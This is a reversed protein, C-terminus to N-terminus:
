FYDPKGAADRVVAVAISGWKVSGDKTIHRNEVQVSGREILRQLDAESPRDDPHLIEIFSKGLLEAETYGLFECYKRNVRLFHGDLAHHSIGVAAQEFTVRYLAEGERAADIADKQ